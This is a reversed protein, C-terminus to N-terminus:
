DKNSEHKNKEVTNIWLIDDMDENWKGVENFDVSYVKGSEEDELYDVGEHSIETYHIIKPFGAITWCSGMFYMFSDM